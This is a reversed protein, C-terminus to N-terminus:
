IRKAYESPTLGTHKKFFASFYAPSSFNMIEVIECLPYGEKILKAARNIRLTTYYEKPSLGAYKRFLLKLYSVSIYCNAAIESLSLNRYAGDTLATVARRYCVASPTRSVESVPASGHRLTLLFSSLRDALEQGAFRDGSSEASSVFSIASLCIQRYEAARSEDLTFIGERLESPLSGDAIFSIIYGSPATGDASRIRHFEYPAHIILENEKLTYIAKNETVEVNGSTLFVIEWMEHSEGNFVFREDFEFNFATCFGKISFERDTPILKM